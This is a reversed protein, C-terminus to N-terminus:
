LKNIQSRNRSRQAQVERERKAETQRSFSFFECFHGSWFTSVSWLSRIQCFKAAQAFTSFCKTIKHNNKLVLTASNQAEKPWFVIPRILFIKFPWINSLFRTVSVRGLIKPYFISTVRRKLLLITREICILSLQCHSWIKRNIPSQAVKWLRQCCNIGGGVNKPLKQLPTLILLKVLSIINPCSKSMQCKIVPRVSLQGFSLEDKSM